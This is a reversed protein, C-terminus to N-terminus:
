KEVVDIHIEEMKQNLDLSVTWMERLSVDGQRKKLSFVSYVQSKEKRPRSTKEAAATGWFCNNWTSHPGTRLFIFTNLRLSCM